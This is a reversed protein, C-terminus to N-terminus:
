WVWATGWARGPLVMRTRTLITPSTTITMIKTTTTTTVLVPRGGGRYWGEGSGGRGVGGGWFRKVLGLGWDRELDWYIVYITQVAASIAWLIGLPSGVPGRSHVRPDSHMLASLAIQPMATAYKIANFWQSPDGRTGRRLSTATTGRAMYICQVMRIFSPAFLMIPVAWHVHPCRDEHWSPAVAANVDLLLPNPNPKPPASLLPHPGSNPVPPPHAAHCLAREADAGARALSTLVDALLFEPFNPAQLPVITKALTVIFQLRLRPEFIPLPILLLALPTLYVLVPNSLIWFIGNSRKEAALIAVAALPALVGATLVSLLNLLSLPQPVHARAPGYLLALARPSVRYWFCVALLWLWAMAVLPAFPQAYIIYLVRATEKM